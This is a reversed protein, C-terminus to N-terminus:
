LASRGPAAGVWHLYSEGQTATATEGEAGLAIGSDIAVLLAAVALLALPRWFRTRFIRAYM